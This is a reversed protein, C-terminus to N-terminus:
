VPCRTMLDPRGHYCTTLKRTRSAAGLVGGGSMTNSSRHPMHSQDVDAGIQTGLSSIIAAFAINGLSPDLRGTEVNLIKGRLPLVAQFRRDRGQKATGGASDGEVLYLECREPDTWTCDALKGPLTSSELLGKRRTLERARRAAERARAAQLAKEVIRRADAPHEELWTSLEQYVVSEVAARVDSNGLKTKTQGAFQPDPVKVSIVTTCGERVDEGTLNDDKEKLLGTRRAYDNLSRTLASRFGTLHTGGEQTNINNAFTFMTEQYGTNYQLAVEVHVDGVWRGFHIVDPHLPEKNKNLHRVFSAIGGEYQYRTTQGTREDTLTFSVNPNLFALERLRYLITEA